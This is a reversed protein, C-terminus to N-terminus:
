AGVGDMFGAVVAFFTVMVIATLAVITLDRWFKKRDENTFQNRVKGSRGQEM